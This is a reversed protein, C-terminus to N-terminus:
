LHSNESGYLLEPHSKAPDEYLLPFHQLQDYTFESCEKPRVGKELVLCGHDTGKKVWYFRVPGDNPSALQSHQIAYPVAYIFGIILLLVALTSMWVNTNHRQAPKQHYTM